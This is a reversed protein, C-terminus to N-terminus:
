FVLQNPLWTTERDSRIDLALQTQRVAYPNEVEENGTSDYKRGPPASVVVEHASVRTKHSPQKLQM